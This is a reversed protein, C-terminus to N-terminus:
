EPAGAAREGDILHIVRDSRLFSDLRFRFRDARYRVRSFEVPQDRQDYTLGDVQL